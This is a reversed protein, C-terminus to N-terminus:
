YIITHCYLVVGNWEMGIWELEIWDMGIWELGIWDLGNWDLRIWDMGNRDMGSRSWEWEVGVGSWEVGSWEVGRGLSPPPRVVSWQLEVLAAFGDLTRAHPDLLVVALTVLQSTRDWGDSCHVLM